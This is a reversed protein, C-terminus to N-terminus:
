ILENLNESIFSNIDWAGHTTNSLITYIVDLDRRYMSVFSVGADCGTIWPHDNSLWVGLGYADETENQDTMVEKLLDKSIIKGNMLAHWLKHIDDTTSYIGGDGGGRIPLNYINTKYQNDGLEIYGHACNSPLENFRHFGTNSLKNPNIIKHYLYEYYDGTTKEIVMALLVFASNNYHFDTGPKFKMKRNPMVAMYDSPKDLESWPVDVKFNDFDTIFDEDFYDPLGSTHSLLQKITVDEYDEHPRKIHTFLNDDLQLSGEEILCLIGLATFLKTGSAIGMSTSVTMPLQNKRDLFGNAMNFILHEKHEISVVGSFNKEELLSILQEIM